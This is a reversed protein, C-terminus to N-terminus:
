GAVDRSTIQNGTQGWLILVRYDQSNAVGTLTFFDGQNFNGDAQLDEFALSVGGSSGLNGDVIVISPIITTPTGSTTNQLIVKFSSLAVSRDVGALAVTFTGAGTSTAPGMQIAPPQTGGGGILGSVMVYLVAALVVTIAVMLITAIVPSVGEEGKRLVLKRKQM